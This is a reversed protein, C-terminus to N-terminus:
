KKKQLVIVIFVLLSFFSFFNNKLRSPMPGLGHCFVLNLYFYYLLPIKYVGLGEKEIKRKVDRATITKGMKRQKKKKSKQLYVKSM